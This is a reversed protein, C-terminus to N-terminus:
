SKTTLKSDSADGLWLVSHVYRSDDSGAMWISDTLM